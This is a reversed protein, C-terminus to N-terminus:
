GKEPLSGKADGAGANENKGDYEFGLEKLHEQRAETSTDPASTARERTLEVAMRLTIAAAAEPRVGKFTSPVPRLGELEDALKLMAAREVPSAGREITLALGHMDITHTEDDIAHDYGAAMLKKRIIAYVDDPVPLEVYTRTSRM